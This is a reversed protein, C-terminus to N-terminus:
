QPCTLDIRYDGNLEFLNLRLAYQHECEMNEGCEYLYFFWLIDDITRYGDGNLDGELEPPTSYSPSLTLILLVALRVIHKYIVM